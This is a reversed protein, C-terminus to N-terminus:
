LLILRRGHEDSVLSQLELEDSSRSPGLSHLPGTKQVEEILEDAVLMFQVPVRMSHPGLDPSDNSQVAETARYWLRNFPKEDSEDYLVHRLLYPDCEGSLGFYSSHFGSRQDISNPEVRHRTLPHKDGVEKKGFVDARRPSHDTISATPPRSNPPLSQPSLDGQLATSIGDLVNHTIGSQSQASIHDLSTSLGLCVLGPDLSPKGSAIIWPIASDSIEPPSIFGQTDEYFTSLAM